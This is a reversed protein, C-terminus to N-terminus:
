AQPLTQRQLSGQGYLQAQTQLRPNGERDKHIRRRRRNRKIERSVTSLPLALRDAIFSLGMGQNLYKEISCRKEFDLHRYNVKESM